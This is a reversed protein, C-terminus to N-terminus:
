RVDLRIWRTAARYVEKLLAMADVGEHLFCKIENSLYALALGKEITFESAPTKLTIAENAAIKEMALDGMEFDELAITALTHAAYKGSSTQAADTLTRILGQQLIAEQPAGIMVREADLIRDGIALTLNVDDPM